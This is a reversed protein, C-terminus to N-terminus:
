HPKSPKYIEKLELIYDRNMIYYVFDLGYRLSPHLIEIWGSLLIMINNGNRTIKNIKMHKSNTTNKM